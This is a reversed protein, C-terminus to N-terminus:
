AKVKKQIKLVLNTLTTILTRLSAVTTALANVAALAAAGSDTVTASATVKVQNVAALATGGTASATITGGSAPMYLKVTYLATDSVRGTAAVNMPTATVTLSESGASGNGFAATSTIGGTALYNAGDNPGVPNGAADVASVSLYALEGPAYTAKDFSLAIKAAANTNVTIATATASKTSLALTDKNRITINATGNASGSFSCFHGGYTDNYPSCSTGATTTAAGTSIADLNDSYAYVTSNATEKIVNGSADIAKVVLAVTSSSGIVKALRTVEYKDVNTSYFNVSKNAFTVSTTKLTITATGSTGDAIIYIDDKGNASASIILSKGSPTSSNVGLNGINTSVTISERAPSGDSTLQTLRIVGVVTNPTFAGTVVDDVTITSWSTGSKMLATSTGSASVAGAASATGDTVTITIQGFTASAAVETQTSGLSDASYVTTYYDLTYTGATRVLTTDLHYLFKASVVGAASAKAIQNGGPKDGNATSIRATLSDSTTVSPRWNASVAKVGTIGITGLGLAHTGGTSATATDSATALVHVTTASAAGTPIKGMSVSIVVSDNATLANFRVSISAATTTDSKQLTANGNTTTVVPAGIIAAKAPVSSLVGLGLAAVAVLAIRKFNTKTSM